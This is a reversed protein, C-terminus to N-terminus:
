PAEVLKSLRELQGRLVGDVPEALSGLGGEGPHYGGVTYTLTVDTSNGEVAELTFTLAGAVGMGQLPGLGGRMRLTKGPDVYVVEMHQVIGDNPLGECFCGGGEAEIFLTDSSGSYTHAPDWWAAVDDVLAEFVADPPAAIRATNRSTFGASSKDVVEAASASTICFLVLLFVRM